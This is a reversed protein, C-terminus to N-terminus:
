PLWLLQQRWEYWCMVLQQDNADATCRATARESCSAHCAPSGPLGVLSSWALLLVVAQCTRPSVHCSGSAALLGAAEEEVAAADVCLPLLAGPTAWLCGLLCAGARLPHNGPPLQNDAAARSPATHQTAAASIPEPITSPVSTPQHAGGPAACSGPLCVDQNHTLLQRTLTLM